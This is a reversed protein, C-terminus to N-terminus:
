IPVHQLAMAIMFELDAPYYGIKAKLVIFETFLYESTM